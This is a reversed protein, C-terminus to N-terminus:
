LLNETGKPKSWTLTNFPPPGPGPRTPTYDRLSTTFFDFYINFYLPLTPLVESFRKMLKLWRAGYEEEDGSPTERLSKALEMLEEDRIGSANLSSQYEDGTHFTYYPDFVMDFNTVM